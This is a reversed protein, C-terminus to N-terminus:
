RSFFRSSYKGFQTAPTITIGVSGIAGHGLGIVSTDGDGGLVGKKILNQKVPKVENDLLTQWNDALQSYFQTRDVDLSIAQGQFNFTKEGEALFQSRLAHIEAYKIWFYRVPGKANTMTFSTFMGHAGNFGDRGIRLFALLAPVTFIMDQRHAITTVAKNIIGRMDETAQLISANVVFLRSIQRQKVNSTQNNFYVWSITYPDLSAVIDAIASTDIDGKYLWGDSVRRKDLIPVFPVILENDRYIEIGVNEYPRDLVLQLSATDGVMEVLDAAGEPVTNLSTIRLNEFSYFEQGNLKLTWRIQYSQGDMTTPLDQPANVVARADVRNSVGNSTVTYEFANGSAYFVGNQDLLDWLVYGGVPDFSSPFAFVARGIAADGANLEGLLTNFADPNQTTYTTAMQSNVSVAVQTTIVRALSTTAQVTFGYTVGDTGPGVSITINPSAVATVSTTLGVPNSTTTLASVVTEGPQLSNALSFTKIDTDAPFKVYVLM